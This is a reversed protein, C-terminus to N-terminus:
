SEDDEKIYKNIGDRCWSLKKSITNLLIKENEKLMKRSNEKHYIHYALANFKLNKRHINSNFLREVFESDERGWGIFAENFGNIKICDEKFFSFNCTRIAKNNKNRKQFIKSLLSFRLTNKRNSLDKSFFNFNLQETNFIEKSKEEGLLVRSGQIFTKKESAKIHDKVFDKHLIMDGDILIIYKFRAKSIAKNRSKAARFGKDKQWSHILPVPFNKQFKEVLEKTDNKSGDDAIIVENPLTSQNKISLLVLKLAEKWNYTTIILSTKM